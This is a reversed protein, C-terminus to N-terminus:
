EAQRLNNSNPRAYRSKVIFTALWILIFLVLLFKMIGWQSSPRKPKILMELIEEKPKSPDYDPGTSLHHEIGEKM